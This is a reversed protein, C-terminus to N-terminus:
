DTHSSEESTLRKKRASAFLEDVEDDLKEKLWKGTKNIAFAIYAESALTNHPKYRFLSDYHAFARKSFKLKEDSQM